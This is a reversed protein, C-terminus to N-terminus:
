TKKKFKRRIFLISFALLVVGGMLASGDQFISYTGPFGIPKPVYFHYWTNFVNEDGLRWNEGIWKFFSMDLKKRM